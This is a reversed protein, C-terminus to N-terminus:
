ISRLQKRIVLFCTRLLIYLIALPFLFVRSFVALLINKGRLIKKQSIRWRLHNFIINLNDRCATYADINENFVVLSRYGSLLAMFKLPQYSRENTGAIITIDCRKARLKKVFAFQKPLTDAYSSFITEGKFWPFTPEFRRVITWEVHPLWECCRRTIREDYLESCSLVILGSKFTNTDPTRSFFISFIGRM